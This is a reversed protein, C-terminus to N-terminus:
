QIFEARDDPVFTSLAAPEDVSHGARFGYEREILTALKRNILDLRIDAPCARTCEDCGSCRGALHFARTINWGLNGQNTFAASVWQPRTTDVICTDCYCMPCVARCAYCRVCRAFQVSWYAWRAVASQAELAAIEADRPDSGDAATEMGGDAHLDYLAPERVDCDLCKDLPSGNAVMGPCPLGVITIKERNIQQERLLTVISRADCGKVLLGVKGLRTVLERTVYVSLNALCHRNWVLSESENPDMLFVPTTVDPLSGQGFGVIVEVRGTELLERAISRISAATREIEASSGEHVGLSEAGRDPVIPPLNAPPDGWPQARPGRQRLEETFSKVVETWKVAEAASIWTFRLREPELGLFDLLERFVTFRRRALYNGSTYHCDGPHCGSVLVGDAGQELAKVLFLPDIRGTCPLKVVRVNAPYEMRSTGALDAGAYTCWQCVFAVIQPQWHPDPM